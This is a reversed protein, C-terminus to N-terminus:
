GRSNAKKKTKRGAVSQEAAQRERAEREERARKLAHMQWAFFALLGGFVLFLEILILTQANIM